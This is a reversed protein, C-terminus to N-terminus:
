TILVENSATITTLITQPPVCTESYQILQVVSPSELTEDPCTVQIRFEYNTNNLLGNVNGFTTTNTPVFQWNTTGSITYAITYAIAEPVATWVVISTNNGITFVEINEPSNCQATAQNSTFFCLNIIFFYVLFSTFHNM